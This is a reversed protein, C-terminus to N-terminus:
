SWTADEDALKVQDLVSTPDILLSHKGDNPLIFVPIFIHRTKNSLQM